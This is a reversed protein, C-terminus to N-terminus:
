SARVYRKSIFFLSRSSIEQLPELVTFPTLKLDCCSSNRDAGALFFGARIREVEEERAYETVNLRSITMMGYLRVSDM